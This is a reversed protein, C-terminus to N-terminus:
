QFPDKTDKYLKIFHKFAIDSLCNSTIQQLQRKNPIEMIVHTTNLRRDKPLKFYSQSIFVLSINVKRGTM